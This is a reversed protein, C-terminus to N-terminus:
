KSELYSIDEMNVITFLGSNQNKELIVGMRKETGFGQYFLNIIGLLHVNLIPRIVLFVQKQSRFEPIKCIEVELSPSTLFPLSKFVSEFYFILQNKNTQPYSESYYKDSILENLKDLNKTDISKKLDRFFLLINGELGTPNLKSKHAEQFLYIGEKLLIFIPYM